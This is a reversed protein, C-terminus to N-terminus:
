VDDATHWVMARVPFTAFFARAAVRLQEDRFDLQVVFARDADSPLLAIQEVPQPLFDFASLVQVFLAYRCCDTGAVRIELLLEDLRKGVAVRAQESILVFIM